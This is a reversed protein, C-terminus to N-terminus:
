DLLNEAVVHHSHSLEDRRVALLTRAATILQTGHKELKHPRWFDFINTSVPPSNM